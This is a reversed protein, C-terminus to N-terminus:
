NGVFIQLSLVMVFLCLALQTVLQLSTSSGGIFYTVAILVVIPGLFNQLSFRTVGNHKM